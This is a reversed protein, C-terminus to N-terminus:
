SKHIAALITTPCVSSRDASATFIWRLLNPWNRSTIKGSHTPCHSNFWAVLKTRKALEPYNRTFLDEPKPPREGATLKPPFQNVIEKDKRWRLARYSKSLYVDSDRRHTMTRNYFHPRAFFPLHYGGPLTEFLLMIFRQHPLRYTPLDHELYDGADIIVGDSHNFLSRDNTAICNSIKCGADVFPQRGFGFTM